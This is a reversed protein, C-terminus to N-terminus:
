FRQMAPLMLPCPVAAPPPPRVVTSLFLPLPMVRETAEDVDIRQDIRWAVAAQGVLWCSQVVVAAHPLTFLFSILPLFSLLVCLSLLALSCSRARITDCCDM